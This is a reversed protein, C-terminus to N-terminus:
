ITAVPTRGEQTLPTNLTVRQRVREAVWVFVLMGALDCFLDDFGASRLPSLSQAAEELAALTFPILLALPISWQGFRAARGNLWLHLWFAVAGFLTFHLVKDAYPWRLLTLPIFGQYAMQTIFLVLAVQLWLLWRLGAGGRVIFLGYCAAGLGLGLVAGALIDSPYHHGLYVRSLAILAASPWLGWAWRETRYCLWLLMACAFAGLAHGSPFAPYNPTAWILRVDVPRPRLVTYQFLFTLALSLALTLLLAGGARRRGSRWLVVGLGPGLALGGFTLFLMLIDLVPHALTQNFFVLLLTDM